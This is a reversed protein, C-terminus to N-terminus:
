RRNMDRAKRRCVDETHNPINCYGCRVQNRNGKGKRRCQDTTHNRLGCHDCKQSEREAILQRWDYSNRVVRAVEEYDLKTNNVAAQVEIQVCLDSYSPPLSKLMHLSADESDLPSGVVQLKGLIAYFSIIHHRVDGGEELPQFNLLANKAALRSSTSHLKNEFHAFVEQLNKFPTESYPVYSKLIILSLRMAQDYTSKNADTITTPDQLVIGLGQAKLYTEVSFKWWNFNFIDVLPSHEEIHKLLEKKYGM